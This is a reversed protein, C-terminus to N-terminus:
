RASFSTWRAWSARRFLLPRRRSSALRPRWVIPLRNRAWAGRMRCCRGVAVGGVGVDVGDADVAIFNATVISKAPEHCATVRAVLVAHMKQAEPNARPNGVELVLGGATLAVPLVAALPLWRRFLTNM